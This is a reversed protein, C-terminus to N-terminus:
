SPRRPCSATSPRCRACARTRSRSRTFMRALWVIVVLGVIALALEVLIRFLFITVLGGLLTLLMLVIIAQSRLQGRLLELVKEVPQGFEYGCRACSWVRDEDPQHCM